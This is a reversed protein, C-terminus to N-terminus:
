ETYGQINVYTNGASNGASLAVNVAENTACTLPSIFAPETPTYSGAASCWPRRWLTTSGTKVIVDSAVGPAFSSGYQVGTIYHKKGVVAAVAVNDATSNGIALTNSWYTRASNSETTKLSLTGALIGSLVKKIMDTTSAM